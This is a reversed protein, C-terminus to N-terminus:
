KVEQVKLIVSRRNQSWASENHGEVVPKEKGYSVTTIRKPNIGRLELYVAVASARKEGLALNYEETGREDCHGQVIIDTDEDILKNSLANLTAVTEAKLVSSDYDFYVVGVENGSGDSGCDWRLLSCGSLSVMVLFAVLLKRM